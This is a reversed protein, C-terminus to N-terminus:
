RSLLICKVKGLWTLFKVFNRGSLIDLAVYFLSTTEVSILKTPFCKCFLAEGLGGTM